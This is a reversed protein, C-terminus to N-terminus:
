MKMIKIIIKNTTGLKNTTGKKFSVIDGKALYISITNEDRSYESTAPNADGYVKGVEVKNVLALVETRAWGGTMGYASM